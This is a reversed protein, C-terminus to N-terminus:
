YANTYTVQVTKDAAKLGDPISGQAGGGRGGFGGGGFGGGGARATDKLHKSLEKSSVHKAAEKWEAKVLALGEAAAHETAALVAVLDGQHVVKLNSDAEAAKTDVSALKAGYSPPRLVKAHLMGPRRIDSPYQHAGTVFDRGDVKAAPKGAVTWKSAPSTPVNADIVKMLKQGKTLEGFSLSPKGDPGKVKGDAVALTDRKVKAQEAALDLLVERAAAAARRLQPVMTPTTRSGFTGADFPVAATDAMVMKISKLPVHLEEAVVQSLSTRINQGIEVKGSYVTIASDEGIHIWAGIERPGGGGFQGRGGPRQRQADAEEGMLLAVIVGAGAIRFFERRTQEANLLAEYWEYREPDIALQDATPIIETM